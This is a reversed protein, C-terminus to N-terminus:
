ALCFRDLCVLCLWSYSVTSNIKMHAFMEKGIQKSYILNIEGKNQVLFQNKGFVKWASAIMAPRTYILFLRFGVLHGERIEYLLWDQTLIYLKDSFQLVARMIVDNNNAVTLCIGQLLSLDSWNYLFPNFQGAVSVETLNSAISFLNQNYSPQETTINYQHVITSPSGIHVFLLLVTCM